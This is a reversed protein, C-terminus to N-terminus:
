PLIVRYFRQPFNTAQLDTFEILGHQAVNTSITIWNFLDASGQIRYLQNTQGFVRFTPVPGVASVAASINTLSVVAANRAIVLPLEVNDLFVADLNGSFSADKVYKWELTNTGAPVNFQFVQWGTEGSANNILINTSNATTLTFFFFDHSDETSVRYAFRAPGAFMAASLKLSSTQSNGIAGSRAFFAGGTPINTQTSNTAQVFWGANGSVTWPLKALGGTEFNDAYDHPAFAATLSLDGNMTLTIPNQVTNAAGLWTVFDVGPAPAATVQVTANSVFLGTGPTVLGGGNTVVTLSFVTAPTFNYQLSVLGNAGGVGDVAISYTVGARMAQDLQSFTSLPGADDNASVLSLQDVRTGTYIAMVTDFTSNSTNISLVGDAFPTFTFWISHGGARGAHFPEGVELTANTNIITIFGSGGPLAIANAFLDNPPNFVICTVSASAITSFNGAVDVSVVQILNTGPDLQVPAFWSNTGFATVIAQNNIIVLVRAVGSPSVGPDNATGTVTMQTNTTILGSPPFAIAVTPRTTDPLGNPELRVRFVGSEASNAGAIAIHYTVDAVANFQVYGQLVLGGPTLVDNTAAVVGLTALTSNTYVAVVTDFASGLTDIIVPSSTKPTWTYWVSNAVTTVGAHVPENAELTAFANTGLFVGGADPLKIANAFNDNVPGSLVTYRFSANFNTKGPATIAFSITITGNTNPVPLNYSYVNDGPVADPPTGDNFFVYNTGLVNAQVTANPVGLADNVTVFFPTISGALLFSGAGPSVTVELIGDPSTQAATTAFLGRGYTAAYLTNGTFFLQNVAVNAPGENSPSWSSGGNASAFIGVETGAYLFKPNTPSVALTRVPLAPLNGSVNAWSVGYNTSTWVNNTNFGGFTAYVRTSDNPDVTLSLCMRRPLGPSGRDVRSWTPTSATGNTTVFIEGDNHGVWILDRAGKAMAIASIFEPFVPDTPPKIAAWTPIQSKVDTSRWLSAGGGLLTNPNNPDLLIPAYFNAEGQEADTLGTFIYNASLAGDTSRHINLFVYEGYFFNPDTPDAQTYGGDGGFYEVWRFPGGVPTFRMTGNDQAGGVITGSITNVAVGNLQTIGLGHDMQLWGSTLVVTATNDARYIGGDNGFYVTFNNTGDYLPSPVIVHHDAHASAPASFWQSIQNLTQGGDTSRWLDLGGVILVNTDNPAVWLANAYWGQQSLYGTSGNRLTYTAGSDGSVYLEGSNNDLSAYVINPASPAFALEIRGDIFGSTSAFGTAPLWNQGGDNSYIARSNRGGAVATSGDVPNLQVDLIEGNFVRTWSTGGNTTRFIGIQTAALLIQPNTPHIALRNVFFFNGNTTSALQSWTVGGDTTKFIGAGRQADINFFGEGTGAYLTNPNSPDIVMCSVALNAMFDAQPSWNTGGDTTKWIGGSVSGVWISNPDTPNFVISRVRGGINLPGLSTWASPQIGATLRQGSTTSAGDLPQFGAWPQPDVVMSRKQVWAQMLANTPIQGNEDQLSLRRFEELRRERELRSLGAATGDPVLAVLAAVAFIGGFVWRRLFASTM